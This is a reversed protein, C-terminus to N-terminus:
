FLCNNLLLRNELVKKKAVLRNELVKKKSSVHKRVSCRDIYKYLNNLKGYCSRFVIILILRSSNKNNNQNKNINKKDGRSM